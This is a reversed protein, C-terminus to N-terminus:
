FRGTILWRIGALIFLEPCYTLFLTWLTAAWPTAAVWLAVPGSDYEPSTVGVYTSALDLGNALLWLGLLVTGLVLSKAFFSRRPYCGFEVLSIIAGVAITLFFFSWGAPLIFRVVIRFLGFIVAVVDPGGLTTYRAGILWFVAGAVLAVLGAARWQATQAIGEFQSARTIVKGDKLDNRVTVPSM